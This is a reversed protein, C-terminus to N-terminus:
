CMYVHGSVPRAQYLGKLLCYHTKKHGCVDGKMKAFAVYCVNHKQINMKSKTNNRFSM